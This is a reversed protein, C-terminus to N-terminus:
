RADGLTNALWRLEESARRRQRKPLLKRFTSLAARLRRTAIRMQHVGDPHGALVAAENRMVQDLCACGIRRLTEEATLRADLEISTGEVAEAATDAGSALEFGRDSKSALELRVPSTDLLHLAVDYLAGVDGSKLELEIECIRRRRKGSCQRIEGRD